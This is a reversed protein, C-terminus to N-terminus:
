EENKIIIEKIPENKDIIENDNNQDQNLFNNNQKQIALAKSQLFRQQNYQYFAAMRWAMIKNQMIIAPDILPTNGQEKQDLITQSHKSEFNFNNKSSSIQNDKTEEDEIKIMENNFKQKNDNQIEIEENQNELINNTNQAVNLNQMQMM